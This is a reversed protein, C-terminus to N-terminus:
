GEDSGEELLRAPESFQEEENGFGDAEFEGLGERDDHGPHARPFELAVLHDAVAELAVEGFEQAPGGNLGEFELLHDLGLPCPLLGETGRQPLDVTRCPRQSAIELAVLQPLDGEPTPPLHAAHNLLLHLLPLDEVDLFQGLLAVEMVFGLLNQRHLEEPFVLLEDLDVAPQLVSELLALSGKRLEKGDVLFVIGPGFEGKRRAGEGKGYLGRGIEMVTRVLLVRRKAKRGGDLVHLGDISAPLRMQLSRVTPLQQLHFGIPVTALGVPLAPLLIRTSVTHRPVRKRGIALIDQQLNRPNINRPLPLPPVAEITEFLYLHTLRREDELLGGILDILRYLCLSLLCAGM